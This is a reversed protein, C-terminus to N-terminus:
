WKHWTQFIDPYYTMKLPFVTKLKLKAKNKLIRFYRELFGCTNEDNQWWLMCTLLWMVPEQNAIYSVALLSTFKCRFARKLLILFCMVSMRPILSYECFCIATAHKSRIRKDTLGYRTATTFKKVLFCVFFETNDAIM